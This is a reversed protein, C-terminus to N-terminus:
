SRSSHRGSAMCAHPAGPEPALFFLPKVWISVDRAHIHTLGETKEGSLLLSMWDAFM